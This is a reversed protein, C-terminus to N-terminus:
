QGWWDDTEHQSGTLHTSAGSDIVWPSASTQLNSLCAINRSQAFNVVDTSNPHTRNVLANFEARLLSLAVIDSTSAPSPLVSTQGPSPHSGSLDSSSVAQNAWAPKGHLTWCNEVSHNTGKCHSCMRTDSRGRGRRNRSRDRGSSGRSSGSNGDYGRNGSPTDGSNGGYGRNGTSSDRGRSSQPFISPIMMASNEKVGTPTVHSQESVRLLRSYINGLSPLGGDGALIQDRINHLNPHLGALFISVSFEERQRKLVDPNTTLPHYQNLEDLLSKFNSYYEGLGQSSFDSQHSHFIKEYLSYIRSINTDMSYTEKIADWIAKATNVFMFTSAISPEMSNWLWSMVM